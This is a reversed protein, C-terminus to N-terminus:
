SPECSRKSWPMGAEDCITRRGDDIHKRRSVEFVMTMVASTPVSKNLVVEAWIYACTEATEPSWGHISKCCSLRSLNDKTVYGNISLPPMHARNSWPTECLESCRIDPLALCWWSSRLPRFPSSSVWRRLKSWSPSIGLNKWAPLVKCV